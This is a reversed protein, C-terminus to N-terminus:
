DWSKRPGVMDSRSMVSLGAYIHLLNLSIFQNMACPLVSCRERTYGHTNEWTNSSLLADTQIKKAQRERVDRKFFDNKSIMGCVALALRCRLYSLAAVNFTEVFKSSGAACQQADKSINHSMPFKKIKLYQPQLIANKTPRKQQRKQSVYHSTNTEKCTKVVGPDLISINARTQADRM